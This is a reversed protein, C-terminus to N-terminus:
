SESSSDRSVWWCRLFTGITDGSSFQISGRGLQDDIVSHSDSEKRKEKENGRRDLPRSIDSHTCKCRAQRHNALRERTGAMGCQSDCVNPLSVILRSRVHHFREQKASKKAPNPKAPIHNQDPDVGSQGM